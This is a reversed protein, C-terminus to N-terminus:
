PAGGTALEFAAENFRDTHAIWFRGKARRIADKEVLEKRYYRLFNYFQQTGDRYALEPHALTFLHWADHGTTWKHDTQM